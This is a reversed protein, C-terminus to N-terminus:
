SWLADQEDKTLSNYAKLANERLPFIVVGQLHHYYTKCNYDSVCVIGLADKYLYYYLQNPIRKYIGGNVIDALRQLKQQAAWKKAYFEADIAKAFYNGVIYRNIDVRDDDDIVYGVEFTDDIYNYESLRPIEVKENGKIAIELEEIKKKLYEIQTKYDM